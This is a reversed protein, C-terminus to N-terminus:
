IIYNGYKFICVQSYVWVCVCERERFFFFSVRTFRIAVAASPALGLQGLTQEDMEPTLERLPFTSSLVLGEESM